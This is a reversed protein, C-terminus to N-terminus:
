LTTSDHVEGFLTYGNELPLELEEEVLVVSQIEHIDYEFFDLVQFKGHKEHDRMDHSDELCDVM